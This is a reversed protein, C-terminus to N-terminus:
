DDEEEEDDDEESELTERLCNECMFQNQYVAVAAADECVDCDEDEPIIQNEAETTM